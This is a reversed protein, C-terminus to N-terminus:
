RQYRHVVSSVGLVHGKIRARLQEGTLGAELADPALDLAYLQIVYHHPSDSPPPCPGTYATSGRTNMGGVGELKSEGGVGMAIQRTSAPLGYHLWHDVGLGKQGDPDHLILAFSQTGKPAESWSLAPSINKGGCDNASGANDQSFFANDEAGPTSLTFREQAQAPLQLCLTLAGGALWACVSSSRSLRQM